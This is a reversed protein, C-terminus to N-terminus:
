FPNETRSLRLCILWFDTQYWFDIETILKKVSKYIIIAMASEVNNRQDM